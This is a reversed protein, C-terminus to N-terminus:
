INYLNWKRDKLISYVKSKDFIFDITSFKFLFALRDPYKSREQPYDNNIIIDDILFDLYIVSKDAIRYFLCFDWLGNM